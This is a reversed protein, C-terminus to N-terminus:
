QLKTIILQASPIDTGWAADTVQGALQGASGSTPNQMWFHYYEGAIADILTNIEIRHRELNNASVFRTSSTPGIQTSGNKVTKFNLIPINNVAAQGYYIQQINYPGKTNFTVKGNVDIMVDNVTTGQAAGFTIIAGTNNYGPDFSGTNSASLKEIYHQDVLTKVSSLTYQVTPNGEVPAGISDVTNSGLLKDGLQPILVPYSSIIAM